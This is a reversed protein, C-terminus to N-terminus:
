DEDAWSLGIVLSGDEYTPATAEKPDPVIKFEVETAPDYESLLKILEQVTM